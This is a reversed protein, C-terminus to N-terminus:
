EICKRGLIIVAIGGTLSRCEVSEFGAEKVMAKLRDPPPFSKVSDPLYQYAGKVGSLIRGLKPLIKTFYFRYFSGLVPTRPLAFDLIAVVGGHDLVRHMERLGRCADDLNRLVFASVVANFAAAKFPLALADAEVLEVSFRGRACRLKDRGRCLMPHSFDCGTVPGLSASELSLDATGCGLDLIKPHAVSLRKAVEKVCIRRWRRDMNASLFHNLFDYRRAIASFMERVARAKSGERAFDTRTM